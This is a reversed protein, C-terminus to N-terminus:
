SSKSSDKFTGLTTTQGLGCIRFLLILFISTGVNKHVLTALRSFELVVGPFIAM